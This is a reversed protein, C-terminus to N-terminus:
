LLHGTSQWEHELVVQQLEIERTISPELTHTYGQLVKSYGIWHHQSRHNLESESVSPCVAWLQLLPGCLACYRTSARENDQSPTIITMAPESNM